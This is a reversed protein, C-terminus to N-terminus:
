RRMIPIVVPGAAETMRCEFLGYEQKKIVNTFFEAFLSVINNISLNRKAFPVSRLKDGDKQVM